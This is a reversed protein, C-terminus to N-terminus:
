RFINHTLMEKENSLISHESLTWLMKRMLCADRTQGYLSFWNHTVMKKEDPWWFHEPRVEARGWPVNTEKQRHLRFVFQTYVKELVLCKVPILVSDWRPARKTALHCVSVADWRSAWESLSHKRFLDCKRYLVRLMQHKLHLFFFWLELKKLEFNLFFLFSTKMKEWGLSRGCGTGHWM